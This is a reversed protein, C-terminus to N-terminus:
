ERPQRQRRLQLHQSYHFAAGATIGADRGCSIAEEVKECATAFQTEDIVAACSDQGCSFALALQCMPLRAQTVQHPCAEFLKEM